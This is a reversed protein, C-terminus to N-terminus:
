RLCRATVALLKLVEELHDEDGTESLRLELGARYRHLLARRLAPRNMRSWLSYQPQTATIRSPLRDFSPHHMRAMEEVNWFALADRRKTEMANWVRFDEGEPVFTAVDLISVTRGIRRARGNRQEIRMPSWPLDYHVVRGARHLNLGEGGVDTLILLDITGKQFELALEGMNKAGGRSRCFSGTGVGCRILRSFRSYLQRATEVAGVFVLAPVDSSGIEQELCLTKPEPLEPLQELISVIRDIEATLEGADPEDEPDLFLQPFLLEQVGGEVVLLRTFERRNLRYGNRLLDLGTRCFREQRELSRRLAAVSSHLRRMMILRLIGRSVGLCHPFTLSEIAHGVRSWSSPVPYTVRRHRIDGIDFDDPVDRHCRRLVLENLIRARGIESGLGMEISAVGACKLADDSVILRLLSWLDSPENWIPTATLFLAKAGLVREALRRWGKTAPNRFRHAEDVIVLGTGPTGPRSRRVLEHTRVIAAVDFSLLVEKWMPVLSAPVILETQEGRSGLERAVVAAVWSKGLGVQDALLVGDYRGLRDLTWEVARQQHSALDAISRESQAPWITSSM